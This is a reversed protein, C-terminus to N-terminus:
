YVGCCKKRWFKWIRGFFLMAFYLM